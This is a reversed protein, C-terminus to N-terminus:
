KQLEEAVPDLSPPHPLAAAERSYQQPAHCGPACSGGNETQEFNLPMMWNGFPISVALHQPLPSAHVEHCARCTRGKHERNVHLQHLNLDGDRFDTLAAGDVDRFAAEEHCEFCLAYLEPNWKSYFTPPYAQRLLALQDAGHPDHCASCNGERIPGHLNGAALVEAMALLARGDDGEVSESHCELCLRDGRTQLLSNFTSFHPLHCNMCQKEDRVAAHGVALETRERIDDHCEFCLEAGPQLLQFANQSSHADHCLGCDEDVPIHLTEAQDLGEEVEEHCSLCLSVPDMELLSPEDSAHPQHCLTCMGADVPGHVFELSLDPEREHCTACLEEMDDTRLLSENNAHHPEHCALCDGEAVPEHVINGKPADHCSACVLGLDAPIEFSHLTEDAQDHCAECMEESVPEHVMAGQLLEAHCDLCDQSGDLTVPAQPPTETGPEQLIVEASLSQVLLLLFLLPSISTRLLM